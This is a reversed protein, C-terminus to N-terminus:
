QGPVPSIPTTPAAPKLPQTGALPEGDPGPRPQNQSQSRQDMASGQTMSQGDGSPAGSQMMMTNQPTEKAVTGQQASSGPMESPASVDRGESVNAPKPDDCGALLFLGTAAAMMRYRM